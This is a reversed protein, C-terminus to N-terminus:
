AVRGASADKGARRQRSRRYGQRSKEIRGPLRREWPLCSEADPFLRVVRTSRRIEENLRKLRTTSNRHKHHPRPLGAQAPLPDFTLTEEINSEVRDARKPYKGQWTGIWSTWTGGRRRCTKATPSALLVGKLCDDDAKRPLPTGPTVCSTCTLASGWAAEPLVERIAKKLGAHDDSVALEVAAPSPPSANTPLTAHHHLAHPPAARGCLANACPTGHHHLGTPALPGCWADAPRAM